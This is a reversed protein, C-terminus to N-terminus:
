AAIPRSRPRVRAASSASAAASGSLTPGAACWGGRRITSIRLSSRSGGKPTAAREGFIELILGTRDIVKADFAKELNRQQIPSLAADVIVLEAEAMRVAAALNEVQGSGFLTAAKTDRLRVAIRDIV